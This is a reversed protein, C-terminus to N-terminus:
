TAIKPGREAPALAVRPAITVRALGKEAAGILADFARGAAVLKRRVEVRSLVRHRIRRAADDGAGLGDEVASRISLIWLKVEEPDEWRVFDRGAPAARHDSM